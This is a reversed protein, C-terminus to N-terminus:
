APEYLGGWLAYSYLKDKIKSEFKLYYVDRGAVCIDPGGDLFPDITWRYELFSGAVWAQSIEQVIDGRRVVLPFTNSEENTGTVIVFSVRRQEPPADRRIAIPIIRNALITGVEAVTHAGCYGAYLVPCVLAREVQHVLSNYHAASLGTPVSMPVCPTSHKYDVTDNYGAYVTAGYGAATSSQEASRVSITLGTTTGWASAATVNVRCSNWRGSAPTASQHALNTWSTSKTVSTQTWTGGPNPRLSYISSVKDSHSIMIQRDVGIPLPPLTVSSAAASSYYCECHKLHFRPTAIWEFLKQYEPLYTAMSGATDWPSPRQPVTNCGSTVTITM